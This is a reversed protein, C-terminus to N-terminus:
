TLWFLAEVVGDEVVDTRLRCRTLRVLTDAVATKVRVAECRSLRLLCAMAGDQLLRFDNAGDGASAVM